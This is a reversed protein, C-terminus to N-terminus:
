KPMDLTESSIAMEGGSYGIPHVYSAGIFKAVLKREETNHKGVWYRHWHAKRMGGRRHLIKRGSSVGTELEETDIETDEANSNTNVNFKKEIIGLESINIVNATNPINEEETGKTKKHIYRIQKTEADIISNREIRNTASIYMCCGLIRKLPEYFCELCSIEEEKLYDKFTYDSKFWGKAVEIETFPIGTNKTTAGFASSYKEEANIYIGGVLGGSAGDIYHCHRLYGYPYGRFTYAKYTKLAKEVTGSIDLEIYHYKNYFDIFNVRDIDKKFNRVKNIDQMVYSAIYLKKNLKDIQIISTCDQNVIELGVTIDEMKVNETYLNQAHTGGTHLAFSEFPMYQLTSLDEEPAMSDQLCDAFETGVKYVKRTKDWSRLLYDSFYMMKDLDPAYKGWGLGKEKILQMYEAPTEAIELEKLALCLNREQQLGKIRSSYDNRWHLAIADNFDCSDLFRELLPVIDEVSLMLSKTYDQFKLLNYVFLEPKGDSKYLVNTNFYKMLKALELNFQYKGFARKCEAFCERYHKAENSNRDYNDRGNTRLSLINGTKNDIKTATPVKLLDMEARKDKIAPTVVRATKLNAKM